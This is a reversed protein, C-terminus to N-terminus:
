GSGETKQMYTLFGKQFEETQLYRVMLAMAGSIDPTKQPSIAPLFDSRGFGTEVITRFRDSRAEDTDVTVGDINGSDSSQWLDCPIEPQRGYHAAWALCGDPLDEPRLKAWISYESGYLGPVYGAEFITGCWADVVARLTEPVLRLQEPAEMDLFVGCPMPFGKITDLLFRAERQADEGTLAHSYCYCGVPFGTEYAERYFDFAADDRYGTGETVKIIVFENGADRIQRITLGKQYHSLDVGKM